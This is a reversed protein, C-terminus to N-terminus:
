YGRGRGSCAGTLEYMIVVVCSTGAVPAGTPVTDGEGETVVGIVAEIVAEDEEEGEETSDQSM